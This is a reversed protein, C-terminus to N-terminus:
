DGQYALRHCPIKDSLISNIPNGTHIELHDDPHAEFVIKSHPMVTREFFGNATNAIRVIQFQATNNLYCCQVQDVKQPITIETNELYLPESVAYRFRRNLIVKM